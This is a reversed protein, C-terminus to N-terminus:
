ENEGVEVSTLIEAARMTRLHEQWHHLFFSQLAQEVTLYKQLNPDHIERTMRDLPLSLILDSIRKENKPISRLTTTVVRKQFIGVTLANFGDLFPTAVPVKIGLLALRLSLVSLNDMVNLHSLMAALSWGHYRAKYWDAEPVQNALSVVEERVTHIQEILSQREAEGDLFIYNTQQQQEDTTM